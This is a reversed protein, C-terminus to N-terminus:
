RRQDPQLHAIKDDEVQQSPSLCSSVVPIPTLVNGFMNDRDDIVSCGHVRAVFHRMKNAYFHKTGSNGLDILYSNQSMVKVVTGPGQWKNLLKGGCEPALVIVQDGENFTKYRVTLNYRGWIDPRSNVLMNTLMAPPRACNRESIWSITGLDPPSKESGLWTEKLVALPGRPVRGYVLMYSSVGTTANPVERLAWVILPVYKHWQRQHDRVVHSLMNKCTQNFREVMGSAKPHEFTNFRQSCGLRFLMERTLSSTFNTDQDSIMIKPVRVYTFFDILSECVAKATLSKLMYMSPWRTCSDVVCLCYKHGQASPPDLPGICDVNMVQFPVDARTIPTIPVRDTTVPRSRLQCDCCSQVHTVYGRGTFLCDLVNGPKVNGSIAM